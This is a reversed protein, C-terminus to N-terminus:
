LKLLDNINIWNPKAAQPVIALSAALQHLSPFPSPTLCHFPPYPPLHHISSLSEIAAIWALEVCNTVIANILRLLYTAFLCHFSLSVVYIIFNM